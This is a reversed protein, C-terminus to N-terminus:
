HYTDNGEKMWGANAHTYEHAGCNCLRAAISILSIRGNKTRPIATKVCSVRSCGASSWISWVYHPDGDTSASEINMETTATVHYSTRYTIHIWARVTYRHLCCCVVCWSFMAPYLLKTDYCCTFLLCADFTSDM